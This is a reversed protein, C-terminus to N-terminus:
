DGIVVNSSGWTDGSDSTIGDCHFHVRAKGGLENAGTVYGSIIWRTDSMQVSQEHDIKADIVQTNIARECAIEAGGSGQSSPEGDSKSLATAYWGVFVVVVLGIVM